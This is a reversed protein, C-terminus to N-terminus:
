NAAAVERSLLREISTILRSPSIPRGENPANPEYADAGASLALTPAGTGWEAVVLILIGALQPAARVRRIFEIAARAPETNEIVILEFISDLLQEYAETFDRAAVIEFDDRTLAQQTGCTQDASDAVLLIRTPQNM